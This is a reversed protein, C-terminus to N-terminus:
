FNKFMDNYWKLGQMLNKRELKALKEAGYYDKFHIRCDVHRGSVKKLKEGEESKPNVRSRFTFLFIGVQRFSHTDNAQDIKQKM